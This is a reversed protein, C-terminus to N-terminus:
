PLFPQSLSMPANMRIKRVDRSIWCLVVMTAIYPLANLVQANTLFGAVSKIWLPQSMLADQISQSSAQVAFGLSRMIGFLLAGFILRSPRWTSFVVLAVAIWGVGGVIGEQWAKFQVLAVFAGAFGAMAGGILTTIYRIKIVSYGISHASRPSEGVARVILGLKSHHLFWMLLGCLVLAGYAPISQNFLVGVFPIGSLGTIPQSSFGTVSQNVYKLGILASLGTALITLALGTAVQNTLLHLACFAFLLAALVGALAGFIFGLTASGTNLTVGFATVAGLLMMGEVGLNLVGSKEALLEGMGALILPIAALLVGAFLSYWFGDM